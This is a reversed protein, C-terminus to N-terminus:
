DFLGVNRFEGQPSLPRPRPIDCSGGNRENEKSKEEAEKKREEGKRKKGGEMGEGKGEKGGEKM